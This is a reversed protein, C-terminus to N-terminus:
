PDHYDFVKLHLGWLEKENDKSGCVDRHGFIGYPKKGYPLGGHNYSCMLSGIARPGYPKDGRNCM